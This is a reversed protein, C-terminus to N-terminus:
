LELGAKRAGDAFAKVRGHYKYGARDFCVKTIGASLAKEGLLQGVKFSANVRKTGEEVQVEKSKTSLSVLTHGKLDDIIQGYIHNLSRFVVLRPRSATGSMHKRIAKRRRARKENRVINSPKVM